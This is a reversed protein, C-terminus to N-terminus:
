HKVAPESPRTWIFVLVCSICGMVLAKLWMSQLMFVIPYSVMLLMSITALWKVRTRIAGYTEWDSIIPGFYKHSVLWRHLRESSRSFCYASLLLFPTTPLLPLFIGIVGSILSVCGLVLFFGRRASHLM